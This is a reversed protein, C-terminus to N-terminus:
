IEYRKNFADLCEDRAKDDDMKTAPTPDYHKVADIDDLTVKGLEILVALLGDATWSSQKLVQGLTREAPTLVAIIGNGAVEEPWRKDDHAPATNFHIQTGDKFQILGLPAPMADTPLREGADKEALKFIREAENKVFVLTGAPWVDICDMRRRARRDPKPNKVDALLKYYGTNM